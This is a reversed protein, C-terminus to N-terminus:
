TVNLFFVVEFNFNVLVSWSFFSWCRGQAEPCVQTDAALTVTRNIGVRLCLSFTLFCCCWLLTTTWLVSRYPPSTFCSSLRRQRSCGDGFVPPPRLGSREDVWVVAWVSLCAKVGPHLCEVRVKSMHAWCGGGDPLKSSVKDKVFRLLLWGQFRCDERTVPMWSKGGTAAYNSWSGGFWDSRFLGDLHSALCRWITARLLGPTEEM